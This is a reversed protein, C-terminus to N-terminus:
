KKTAAWQTVPMLPEWGQFPGVPKSTSVAIRTLDGGLTAQAALVRAEGETTVVNAVLRGGAPLRHWVCEILGDTAIGGGVFVADPPDLDDVAKAIDGTVIELQPVGLVAANTAIMACRGPAREVAQAAMTPGARLWEIAVSGCGAGLDWLRQGPQPALAALTAARVVRKTLQGDHVFADDPLGALRSRIKADPGAVCTVAVTNLDPTPTEDWDDATGARRSEDPGGMHSLVVMESPGYCLGRLVAAVQAPTAGNESLILLRAGPAVHLNLLELPRGHLTLCAVEMLPWGLRAAALSFAGPAPLVTMEDHAFARGLTVGIGYAMPDGTALVVVRQGRRAEIDAVTDSLPVRWALREAAHDPVLAHHRAGGVLVEATDVLARAAPSLGDLGDEGLGVIALWPTM